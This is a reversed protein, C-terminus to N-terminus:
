AVLDSKKNNKNSIEYLLRMLVKQTGIKERADFAMVPCSYGRAQIYTQCESLHSDDDYPIAFIAANNELFKSHQHLYYDIEELLDGQNNDIMIVMGAAGRCLIDTMFDLHRQWPTCYLHLKNNAIYAVGYEMLAKPAYLDNGSDKIAIDSITSIATSKNNDDNGVIVIKLENKVVKQTQVPNLSTNTQIPNNSLFRAKSASSLTPLTLAPITADSQINQNKITQKPYM